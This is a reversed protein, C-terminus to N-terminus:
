SMLGLEQLLRPNARWDARVKVHTDLFVHRGLMEEIDKRAETGVERLMSGGKGILIAKQGDREVYISVMIDVRDGHDDWSDVTVAVAHPVEERTKALVKERVAEAVLDRLPQDTYEDEPYLPPGVPLREVLLGVLLDVNQKKTLSTMVVNEEGLAKTYADYNAQVRDPSLRDMKNLAVVVKSRKKDLWGERKLLEFVDADDKGPMRSVDVVVLVADPESVAQRASENLVHGLKDHAKHMGPTDALVMQYQDTTAIGLVRKRTTQPKDSVISVKHGVVHNVLTSKGVNPRGVVAVVGARYEM